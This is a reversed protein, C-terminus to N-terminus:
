CVGAVVVGVSVVLLLIVMESTVAMSKGGLKEMESTVAMPKGGLEEMEAMVAMSKGGLKEVAESNQLEGVIEVLYSSSEKEKM